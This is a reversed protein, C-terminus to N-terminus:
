YHLDEVLSLPGSQYFYMEAVRALQSGQCTPQLPPNDTTGEMQLLKRQPIAQNGQDSYSHFTKSKKASKNSEMM